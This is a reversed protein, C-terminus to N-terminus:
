RLSLPRGRIALSEEETLTIGFLDRIERVREEESECAKITATRGGLNEKVVENVLMRKGYIEQEYEEGGGKRRRLFKVILMRKVQNSDRHNCMWYNVVGWDPQMFEVEGFAYFSNWEAAESNRYQYIWQKSAEVRHVQSPLWDRAFRVQQTGLNQHVLGETLPM